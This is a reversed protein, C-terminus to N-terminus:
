VEIFFMPFFKSMHKHKHCQVVSSVPIQKPTGSFFKANSPSNPSVFLVEPSLPHCVSYIKRLRKGYQCLTCLLEWRPYPSLLVGKLINHSELHLNLKPLKRSKRGAKIIWLSGISAESPPLLPFTYTDIYTLSKPINHSHPLSSCGSWASYLFVDIGHLVM